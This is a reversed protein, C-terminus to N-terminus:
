KKMILMHDVTGCSKKVDGKVQIPALRELEGALVVPVPM